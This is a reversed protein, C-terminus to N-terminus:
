VSDDTPTLPSRARSVSLTQRLLIPAYISLMNRIKRGRKRFLRESAGCERRDKKDKNNTRKVIALARPLAIFLLRLFLFFLYSVRDDRHSMKQERKGRYATM